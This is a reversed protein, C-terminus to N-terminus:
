PLMVLFVYKFIGVLVLVVSASLGLCLTWRKGRQLYLLVSSLFLFSAVPFHLRPLFVSYLALMALVFFVERTLLYHALDRISYPVKEKGFVLALAVSGMVVILGSAVKPAVSPSSYQGSTMDMAFYYGLIGLAIFLLSFVVEGPKRRELNDYSGSM